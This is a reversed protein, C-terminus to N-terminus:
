ARPPAGGRGGAAKAAEYSEMVSPEAGAYFGAITSQRRILALAERAKGLLEGAQAAGAGRHERFSDRARRVIYHRM